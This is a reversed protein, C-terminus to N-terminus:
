RGLREHEHTSLGGNGARHYLEREKQALEAVCGRVERYRM